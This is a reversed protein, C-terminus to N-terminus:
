NDNQVITNIAGTSALAEIRALAALLLLEAFQEEASALERRIILLDPLAMAGAKYTSKAIEAAKRAEPIGENGFTQAASNLLRVKEKAIQIQHNVRQELVQTEQTQARERAVGVQIDSNGRWFIPLSIALTARILTSHEEVGGKAGLSLDPVKANAALEQSAAAEGIKAKSVAVDSREGRQLSETDALTNLDGEVALVADTDLGILWRLQGTADMLAAELRAIDAQARHRALLAISSELAGTDGAAKRATAVSEIETALTLNDKAIEVRYQWYLTNAFAQAAAVITVQEQHNLEARAVIEAASAVGLQSDLTAGFVIPMELGVMVDISTQDGFRPGSEVSLTPNARWDDSADVQAQAVVINAQAAKLDPAHTKAMQLAKSFSVTQAGAVAPMLCTLWVAIATFCHRM